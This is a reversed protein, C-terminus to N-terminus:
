LQGAPEYEIEPEDSHVKHGTPVNVEDVPEVEQVLQGEPVNLWSPAVLQVDAGAPYMTFASEDDKETQGAPVNEATPDEEQM